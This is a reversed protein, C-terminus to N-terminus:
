VSAAACLETLEEVQDLVSEVTIAPEVPQFEEDRVFGVNLKNLGNFAAVKYAETVAPYKCVTARFHDVTTGPAWGSEHALALDVMDRSYEALRDRHFAPQVLRRQRLHTDGESTLLGNGLLAKAGQLGRGKMTDRGHNVSSDVMLAPDSVM